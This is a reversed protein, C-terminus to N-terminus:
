SDLNETKATIGSPFDPKIDKFNGLVYILVNKTFLLQKDTNEEAIERFTKLNFDKILFYYIIVKEDNYQFEQKIARKVEYKNIFDPKQINETESIFSFPLPYHSLVMKSIEINDLNIISNATELDRRDDYDIDYIFNNKCFINKFFHPSKFCWEMYRNRQYDDLFEFTKINLLGYTSNILQESVSKLSIRETPNINDIVKQNDLNNVDVLPLMSLEYVEVKSYIRYELEFWDIPMKSIPIARDSYSYDNKEQTFVISSFIFLVLLILIVKKM